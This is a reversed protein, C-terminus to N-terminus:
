KPKRQKIRLGYIYEAELANDCYIEYPFSYIKNVNLYDRLLECKDFLISFRFISNYNIQQKCMPFTICKKCPCDSSKM